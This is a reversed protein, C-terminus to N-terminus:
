AQSARLACRQALRMVVAGLRQDLQLRQQRETHAPQAVHMGFPAVAVPVALERGPGFFVLDFLEVVDLRPVDVDLLHHAGLPAVLDPEAYELLEREALVVRTTEGADDVTVRPLDGVGSRRRALRERHRGLWRS